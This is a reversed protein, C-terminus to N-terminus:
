GPRVPVHQGVGTEPHLCHRQVGDFGSAPRQAAADALHELSPVPVLRFAASDQEPFKLASEGGAELFAGTGNRFLCTRSSISVPHSLSTLSM